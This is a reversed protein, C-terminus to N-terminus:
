VEGMDLARAGKDYDDTAVPSPNLNPSVRIGNWCHNAYNQRDDADKKNAQPRAYTLNLLLLANGSGRNGSAIGM